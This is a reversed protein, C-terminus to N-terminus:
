RELPRLSLSIRTVVPDWARKEEYPYVLDFCHISGRASRSFNCRSYFITEEREMSIAFFSRTIRQYDLAQQRLYKKLYSAPTDGEENERAYISLVARGDDSEFRQGVGKEAKGAPVFLRAPYDVRTGYEPVKFSQWDLSAAQDWRAANAALISICLFAASGLLRFTLCM